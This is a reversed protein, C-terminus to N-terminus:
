TFQELFRLDGQTLLRIDDIGWQLMALREVGMGFAFGTVRRPDYGVATFVAPDVMGCGLVEMWDTVEGPATALRLGGARVYGLDIEASPETFPFFSPRFRVCVTRGFLTQLFQLLVGKLHAFTVGRDVCLGEVQHFMPSHTIDADRRFVAGPAIIRIPPQQREMVHIQVPSTHTRLLLPRISQVYFTDQMDRAPHDPPMNLAEFNHYDSEVEPGEHVAFGLDTFIQEVRRAMIRIPHPAGRPLLQRGPLTIDIQETLDAALARGQLVSDQTAIASELFTKVENARRGVLPKEEAPVAGMQRLIATLLGKRGLFRVRLDQLAEASDLAALESRAQAELQSLQALVGGTM